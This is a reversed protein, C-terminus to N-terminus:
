VTKLTQLQRFDHKAPLYVILKSSLASIQHFRKEFQSKKGGTLGNTFYLAIKFQSPTLM